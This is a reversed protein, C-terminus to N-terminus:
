TDPVAEGTWGRTVSGDDVVVPIGTAREFDSPSPARGGPLHVAVVASTWDGRARAASIERAQDACLACLNTFWVV